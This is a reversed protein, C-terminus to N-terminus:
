GLYDFLSLNARRAQTALAAERHTETQTLELSAQIVDADRLRSLTDRLGLEERHAQNIGEQVQNQVGGFFAIQNNLHDRVRSLSSLTGLTGAQDNGALAVRLANVTAFVPAIADEFIEAGSRAIRF